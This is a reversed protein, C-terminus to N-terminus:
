GDMEFSSELFKRVRANSWTAARECIAGVVLDVVDQGDVPAPPASDPPDETDDRLSCWDDGRETCLWLAETELAPLREVDDEVIQEITEHYAEWLASEEYQVQVCIEDWVNALVSDGGSVPGDTMRQLCRIARRVLRERTTEALADIFRRDAPM